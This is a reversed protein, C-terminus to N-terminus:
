QNGYINGLAKKLHPYIFRFGASEIKSSVKAGKLILDAKEGLVIKLIWGPIAPLWLPKHLVSALAKTIEANTVPEPAVANYPGRMTKDELAKIYIEVLDDIHIWPIYQDGEGLPAGLGLKVPFALQPLAGGEKTLVIGTRISVTRINLTGIEEIAKEWQLCVKSLFDQGPESSESVEMAGTDGYYGTASASIVAEVQHKHQQLANFLLEASLVRSELIEKKYDKTWPKDAIGAGALHIIHTIGDLAHPDITRKKLDWKFVPFSSDTHGPRHSLLKVSFGKSNLKSCLHGGILGTGGTILVTKNM